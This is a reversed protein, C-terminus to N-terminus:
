VWGRVRYLAWRVQEYLWWRLVALRERVSRPNSPAFEREVSPASIIGTGTKEFVAAARASHYPSTVLIARKWGRRQALEAFQVAEDRTSEVPGIVEITPRGCLRALEAVDEDPKPFDGGVQTRVLTDAWGDNVLGMAYVTRVFAVEDLKREKTTASSLVVVADAKELTDKRILSRAARPFVPTSVAVCFLVVAFGGCMWVLARARTVYVAACVASFAFIGWWRDFELLAKPVSTAWLAIWVVAGMYLGTALDKRRDRRGAAQSRPERKM